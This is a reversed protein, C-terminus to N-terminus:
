TVTEPAPVFPEGRFNALNGFRNACTAMTKDCGHTFKVGDGIGIPSPPATLLEVVLSSTAATYLWSNKVTRAIGANPGTTFTLVGLNFAGGQYLNGAGPIVIVRNANDSVLGVSYGTATHPVMAVTCYADYLSNKCGPQYLDGPVLIDLLEASSRVELTAHGRETYAQGIRGEFAPVAGMLVLSGSSTDYFAHDVHVIAGDFYGFAIAAIIGIGAVKNAADADWVDVTMTDVSIGVKLSTRTRALGPGALYTNGLFPLSMDANTYRLVTGSPLNVTYLDVPAAQTNAALWAALAGATPEYAPTRM